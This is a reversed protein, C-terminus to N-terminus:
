ITIEEAILKRNDILRINDMFVAAFIRNEYIDIYDVIINNKELARQLEQPSDYQHFIKAFIKAKERLTSSLLNNRSSYALGSPERVTKCCIVNTEIFFANVMEKIINFQQYDKEGFYINSPKIIQLLKMVVTLVGSFHGPRAKGELINSQIKEGIYYSFNDSYMESKNPIFVYDVNLNELIELDKKTNSPYNILDEDKNFQTPNIFISVVITKNNKIAEKILSIHGLHLAGMTPIFGISNNSIESKRILRWNTISEVVVV